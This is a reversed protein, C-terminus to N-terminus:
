AKGSSSASILSNLLRLSPAVLMKKINGTVKLVGCGRVCKNFTCVKKGFHGIFHSPIIVTLSFNM